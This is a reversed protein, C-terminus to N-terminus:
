KLLLPQGEIDSYCRYNLHLATPEMIMSNTIPLIPLLASQTTNVEGDLDEEQVYSRKSKARVDHHYLNSCM